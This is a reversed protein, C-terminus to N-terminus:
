SEGAQVLGRDHLVHSGHSDRKLALGAAPLLPPQALEERFSRHHEAKGSRRHFPGPSQYM